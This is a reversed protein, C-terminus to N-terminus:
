RRRRRKSPVPLPTIDIFCKELPFSCMLAQAKEIQTARATLHFVMLAFTSYSRMKQYAELQGPDIADSNAVLLKIEVCAILDSGLSFEFDPAKESRIARHCHLGVQRAAYTFTVDLVTQIRPEDTAEDEFLSETKEASEFQEKMSLCLSLVFERLQERSVIRQPRARDLFTAGIQKGPKYFWFLSEPDKGWDYAGLLRGFSQVLDRVMEPNASLYKEVAGGVDARTLERTKIRVAIGRFFESMARREQSESPYLSALQTASTVKPMPSLLARPILIIPRPASSESHPDSRKLQRLYPHVPLHFVEDDKDSLRFSRLKERSVGLKECVSQTFRLLEKKLVSAMFDSITDPGLRTELPMAFALNEAGDVGLRVLRHLGRLLIEKQGRTIRLGQTGHVSYGLGIEPVEEFRLIKLATRWSNDSGDSKALLSMVEEVHASLLGFGGVFDPSRYHQLLLPSIFLRTDRGLMANFAGTREFADESVGLYDSVSQIM